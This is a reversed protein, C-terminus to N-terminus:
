SQGKAKQKALLKRKADGIARPAAASVVDIAADWWAHLQDHNAGTNAIRCRVNVIEGYVRAETNADRLADALREAAANRDWIGSMRVVFGPFSQDPRQAHGACTSTICLGPVDNLRRMQAVDLAGDILLERFPQFIDMDRFWHEAARELDSDPHEVAIAVQLAVLLAFDAEPLQVLEPVLSEPLFPRNTRYLHLILALLWELKRDSLLLAATGLADLFRVALTHDQDNVVGAPYDCFNENLWQFYRRMRRDYAPDLRTTTTM